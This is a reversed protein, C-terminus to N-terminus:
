FRPRRLVLGDRSSLNKPAAKSSAVAPLFWDPRQKVTKGPDFFVHAAFGEAVLPGGEFTEGTRFEFDM